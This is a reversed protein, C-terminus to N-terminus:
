PPNSDVRVGVRERLYLSFFLERAGKPSLALTLPFRFSALINEGLLWCPYIM